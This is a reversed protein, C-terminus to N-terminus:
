EFIQYEKNQLADERIEKELQKKLKIKRKNLVIQEIREKVYSLPASQGTKLVSDIVILYRSQDTKYNLFNTNKLVKKKNLFTLSPIEELVTQYAVWNKELNFNSSEYSPILKELEDIDENTFRKLAKITARLNKYNEPLKIYRFQVLDEQLIFSQKYKNFYSAVEENSIAKNLNKKVYANEYASSFLDLRYEEVLNNYEIQKKQTMNKKSEHLILQKTAWDNINDILVAISDKESLGEPINFNKLDYDYLIVNHVKAVQKAEQTPQLLDCSFLTSILFLLFLYKIQLRLSM